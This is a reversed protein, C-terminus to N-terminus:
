RRQQQEHCAIDSARRFPSYRTPRRGHNVNITWRNYGGRGGPIKEFKLQFTGDPDAVTGDRGFVTYDWQMKPLAKWQPEGSQNEYEVVVGLGMDRDMDKTSGFIWVGPNNMEVIVDAREAVDLQLVDVTRAHPGSQWRACYRHLSSGCPLRRGM